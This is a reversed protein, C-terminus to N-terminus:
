KKIYQTVFPLTRLHNIPKKIAKIPQKIYNIVIPLSLKYKNKDIEKYIKHRIPPTFSLYKITEKITKILKKM